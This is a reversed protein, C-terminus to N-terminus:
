TLDRLGRLWRVLHIVTMIVATLILTSVIFGFAWGAWGSGWNFMEPTVGLEPAPPLIHFAAVLMGSIALAVIGHIRM